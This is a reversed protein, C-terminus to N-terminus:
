QPQTFGWCKGAMKCNTPAIHSSKNLSHSSFSIDKVPPVFSLLVACDELERKEQCLLEKECKELAGPYAVYFLQRIPCWSKDLIESNSGSPSNGRLIM